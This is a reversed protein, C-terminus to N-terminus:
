VPVAPAFRVTQPQPRARLPQAQVARDRGVVQPGNQGPHRGAQLMRFETWLIDRIQNGTPATMVVKRHPATLPWWLALGAATTSKTVKQGARVAVLDSEGVALVLEEQTCQDAPICEAKGDALCAECPEAPRAFPPLGLVDRYFAVPARTFRRRPTVMM